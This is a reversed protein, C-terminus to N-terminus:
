KAGGAGSMENNKGCTPTLRFMGRVVTIFFYTYRFNGAYNGDEGQFVEGSMKGGYGCVISDSSQILLKQEVMKGRFPIPSTCEHSGEVHLTGIARIGDFKYIFVTAKGGRERGLEEWTGSLMCPFANARCFFLALTAIVLIRIHM